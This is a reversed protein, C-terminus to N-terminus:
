ARSPGVTEGACGAGQRSIPITRDAALLSVTLTEIESTNADAITVGSFPTIIMEDTVAQSGATGSISVATAMAEECQSAFNHQPPFM